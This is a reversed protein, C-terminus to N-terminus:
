IFTERIEIWVGAYPTVTIASVYAIAFHIEIWVGAYPTVKTVNRCNKFITSKLGCERTPLSSNVTNTTDGEGIEIWVGAYPTVRVPESQHRNQTFKM